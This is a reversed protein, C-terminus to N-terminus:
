DPAPPPDLVWLSADVHEDKGNNGVTVLGQWAFGPPGVCFVDLTGGNSADQHGLHMTLLM